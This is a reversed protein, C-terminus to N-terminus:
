VFIYLVLIFVNIVQFFGWDECTTRLKSVEDNQEDKNGKILKSFNIVPIDRPSSLVMAPEPREAKDRVFREPITTPKEKRLEQVDDIHGVKIPSLPVPAM